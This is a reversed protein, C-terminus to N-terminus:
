QLPLGAVHLAANFDDIAAACVEAVHKQTFICRLTEPRCCENQLISLLLAEGEAIRMLGEPAFGLPMSGRVNLLMLIRHFAGMGGMLGRALFDAAIADAPCRRAGVAGIWKRTTEVIFSEAPGLDAKRCDLYRYM